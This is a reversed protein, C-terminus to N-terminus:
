GPEEVPTAGSALWILSGFLVADLVMTSGGFDGYLSSTLYTALFGLVVLGFIGETSSKDMKELRRAAALGLSSLFALFALLGLFGQESLFLMYMNHPSMIELPSESTGGAFSLPVYASMFVPFNKIGVGTVPHDTWMGVSATWLAYRDKVSQDATSSSFSTFISSFREELIGSGESSFGALMAVALGGAVVVVAAKRPQSFLLVAVVGVAAAIWYGRSLSAILPVVLAVALALALWRRWDRIGVYLAVAVLMAYTVLMAMSM